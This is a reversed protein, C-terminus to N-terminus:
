EDEEDNNLKIPLKTFVETGEDVGEGEILEAYLGNDLGFRCPVFKRDADPDQSTDSKKVEQKVWVGLEGSPGTRIAEHPVLIVNHVAEATFEVDAQMGLVLALKKRNPSTVRIDVLYTVINQVKKPEPYIREIVGEFTEDRFSDVNIKVPTGEANIHEVIGSTSVMPQVEDSDLERALTEGGPRAAPAALWLVAGIDADSVETRVYLDSIDAVLALITGGTFTTKGGQVVEGEEVDLRSIM